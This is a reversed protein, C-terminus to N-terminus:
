KKLKESLQTYITPLDNPMVKTNGVTVMFNVDGQWRPVIHAHLHGPIWAGAVEGLNFGINFGQPHYLDQIAQKIKIVTQWFDAQEDASLEELEAVKRYPVILTHATNYPFLNLVAFCSKSRYLVLNKEDENSQSLNVFIEGKEEPSITTSVFAERWPAFLHEM